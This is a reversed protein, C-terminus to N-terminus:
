SLTGSEDSASGGLSDGKLKDDADLQANNGCAVTLLLTTIISLRSMFVEPYNLRQIVLVQPTTTHNSGRTKTITM